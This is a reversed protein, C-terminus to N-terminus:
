GGTRRRRDERVEEEHRDAKERKAARAHEMTQVATCKPAAAKRAAVEERERKSTRRNPSMLGFIALKLM